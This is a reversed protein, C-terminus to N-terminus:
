LSHLIYILMETARNLIVIGNKTAAKNNPTNNQKVTLISDAHYHEDKNFIDSTKIKQM